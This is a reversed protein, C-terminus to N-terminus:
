ASGYSDSIQQMATRGSRGYLGTVTKDLSGVALPEASIDMEGNEPTDALELIRRGHLM